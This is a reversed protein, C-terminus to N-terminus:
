LRYSVMDIFVYRQSYGPCVLSDDQKFLTKFLVDLIIRADSNKWETQDINNSKWFSLQERSASLLSHMPHTKKLNMIVDQALNDLDRDVDSYLFEEEPYYWQFFLTAAEELLQQEAPRKIFKQWEEKM